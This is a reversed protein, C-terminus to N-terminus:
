RIETHVQRAIAILARPMGGHPKPLPLSVQGSNDFHDKSLVLIEAHSSEWSVKSPGAALHSPHHIQSLLSLFLHTENM